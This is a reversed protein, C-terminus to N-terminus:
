LIQAKPKRYTGKCTSPTLCIRLIFRQNDPVQLRKSMSKTSKWQIWFSMFKSNMRAQMILFILRTSFFHPLTQLLNGATLTSILVSHFLVQISAHQSIQKISMQNHEKKRALTQISRSCKTPSPVTCTMLPHRRKLNVLTSCSKTQLILLMKKISLQDM